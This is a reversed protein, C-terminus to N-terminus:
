DLTPYAGKIPLPQGSNITLHEAALYISNNQRRQGHFHPHYLAWRESASWSSVPIRNAIQLWAFLMHIPKRGRVFKWGSMNDQEVPRFLGFFLFLDYSFLNM